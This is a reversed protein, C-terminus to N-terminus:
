ALSVLTSRGTADVISVQQVDGAEDRHQRITRPEAIVYSMLSHEQIKKPGSQPSDGCDSPRM